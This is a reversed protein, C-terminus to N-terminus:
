DLFDEKEELDDIKSDIWQYLKKLPWSVIVAASIATFGIIGICGLLFKKPHAEAYAEDHLFGRFIWAIFMGYLRGGIASLGLYGILNSVHLITTKKM